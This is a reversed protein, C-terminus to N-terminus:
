GAGEAWRYWVGPETLILTPRAPDAEIKQRSQGVFVRLYALDEVHAPGWVARLLARHTVVRGPARSLEVLLAFEKPMLHVEETGRMVRHAAPDIVLGEARIVEAGTAPRQRLCVRLRALFEGIAFPKGVFDDAGLDLALIKEMAEGRASLVLIPVESGRRLREIVDKGDIDPLGLDLVVADPRVAAVLALAEAGTGAAQTDYGAARLAHTLFRQIQPEDDVILIMATM